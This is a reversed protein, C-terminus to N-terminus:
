VFHGYKEVSLLLFFASLCLMAQIPLTQFATRLAPLISVFSPVLSGSVLFNRLM